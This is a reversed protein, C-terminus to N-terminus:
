NIVKVKYFAKKKNFVLGPNPSIFHNVQQKTHM